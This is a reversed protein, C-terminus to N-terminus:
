ERGDLAHHVVLWGDPGNASPVFEVGPGCVCAESLPHEVIDECPRVHVVGPSAALVQWM